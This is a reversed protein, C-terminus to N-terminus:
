TAKQCIYEVPQQRSKAVGRHRRAGAVETQEVSLSDIRQDRETFACAEIFTEECPDAEPRDAHWERHMRAAAPGCFEAVRTQEAERQVPQHGKGGDRQLDPGIDAKGGRGERQRHGAIEPKAGDEKANIHRAVGRQDNGDRKERANLEDGKAHETFIDRPNEVFHFTAREIDDGFPNAVRRGRRRL